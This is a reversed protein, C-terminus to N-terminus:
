WMGRNRLAEAATARARQEIEEDSYARTRDICHQLEHVITLV